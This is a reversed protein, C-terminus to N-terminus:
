SKTSTYRWDVEVITSIKFVLGKQLKKKYLALSPQATMNAMVVQAHLLMSATQFFLIQM